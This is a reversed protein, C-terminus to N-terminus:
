MADDCKYLFNIKAKDSATLFGQKKAHGLDDLSIENDNPVLAPKSFDNAFEFASYHMVSRYDYPFNKVFDKYNSPWDKAVLKEDFENEKGKEINDWNVTVYNDRDKRSQEHRFGITHMLEHIITGKNMCISPELLLFQSGGIRGIESRCGQDSKIIVLYNDDDDLVERFRLCSSAEIEKMASKIVPYFENAFDRPHITFPITSNEWLNIVPEKNSDMSMYTGIESDLNQIDNQRRTKDFFKLPPSRRHPISRRERIKFLKRLQSKFDEKTIFNDYDISEAAIYPKIGYISPMNLDKSQYALETSSAFQILKIILAILFMAFKM